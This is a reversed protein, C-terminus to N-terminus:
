GLGDPPRELLGRHGQDPTGIGVFCTGHRRALPFSVAAAAADCPHDGRCRIPICWCRSCLEAGSTHKKPKPAASYHVHTIKWGAATKFWIDSEQNDETHVKKSTERTTLHLVYSAIATDDMPSFKIHMDSISGAQIGGGAQIFEGWEKKYGPLDTRGEPFWFFPM